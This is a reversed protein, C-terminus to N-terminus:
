FVQVTINGAVSGSLEIFLEDRSGRRSSVGIGLPNEVVQFGTWKRGLKHAYPRFSTAVDVVVTNPSANAGLQPQALRANQQTKDLANGLAQIGQSALQGAPGGVLGAATGFLQLLPRAVNSM